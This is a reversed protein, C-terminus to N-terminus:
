EKNEGSNEKPQEEISIKDIERALEFDLKTLQRESHTTLTLKVINYSIIIDPHHNNKECVEELKNLFKISEKFNAFQFVKIISDGELSWNDLKEMYKSVEELTLM